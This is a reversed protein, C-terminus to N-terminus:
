LINTPLMREWTIEHKRPQLVDRADPAPAYRSLAGVTCTWQKKIGPLVVIASAFFLDAQQLQAEYWVDFLDNSASKAMLSFGQKVEKFIFGAAMQGDLGMQVKAAELQEVGFIDDASFDQLQVPTDFVGAVSLMIIANASTISKPM